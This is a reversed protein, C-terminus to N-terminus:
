KKRMARLKAMKEAMEPSGKLPRGAGMKKVAKKVMGKEPEFEEVAKKAKGRMDRLRQMKAAMEPSGAGAMRGGLKKELAEHIVNM